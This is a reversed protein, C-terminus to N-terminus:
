QKSLVQLLEETFATYDKAGNSSPAYSIIDKRELPMEGLNCNKRIKTQFVLDGLAKRLTDECTRHLRIPQFLTILVGTLQVSSNLRRQVMEICKRIIVLGDIPLPEPELVIIIHQSATFASLMMLGLHPPCDLLIYDYQDKVADLKEKLISERSVEQSLALEIGYSKQSSPVLDLHEMVPVVPLPSDSILSDYIFREPTEKCLCRTLNASGDLDVVLVNYGQRSLISGVSVVTTTKGVGGKNNAFTIIKAEKM